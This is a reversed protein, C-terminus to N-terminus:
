FDSLVWTSYSLYDLLFDVCGAKLENKEKREYEMPKEEKTEKTTGGKEVNDLM